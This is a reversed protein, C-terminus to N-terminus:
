KKILLKFMVWKCNWVIGNADPAGIKASQNIYDVDQVHLLKSDFIVNDGIYIM